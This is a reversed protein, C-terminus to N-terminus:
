IDWMNGKNKSKKIFVAEGNSADNIKDALWTSSQNQINEAYEKHTEQTKPEYSTGMVRSGKNWRNIAAYRLADVTHNYLDEPEDLIKGSTDTMYHYREMEYVLPNCNGKLGVMMTEGGGSPTIKSRILTIGNAIGDKKDFDDVVLIIRAKRILENISPQATDPYLHTVQYKEVMLRVQDVVQNPELGTLSIVSMIYVRGVSDEYISAIAMPDTFGHDLGAYRKVGAKVMVSIIEQESIDRGPDTGTFINYVERPTKEFTATDFRSFVLGERSPQLSLCQAIYWSRDGDSVFDTIAAEISQHHKNVEKHKSLDGLCVTRLPCTLCGTSLTAKEFKDKDKKDYLGFQDETLEVGNYVNIYRDHIFENGHRDAPCQEVGEFVTWQRVILGTKDKNEIEHEVISNPSKRSSIGLRIWPKGDWSAIPIKRIDKYAAAKEGKLTHIEDVTTSMHLGQVTYPTIPRVLIEVKRLEDPCKEKLEKCTSGNLWLENDSEPIYFDTGTQTIDGDILDRIYPMSAFAKIYSYGSDVQDKSGAFHVLNRKGHLVQLIDFAALTITKQTSRASAFLFTKPKRSDPRMMFDYAEWLADLPSSTAFRSVQTDFVHFDLYLNLWDALHDKSECPILLGARQTDIV